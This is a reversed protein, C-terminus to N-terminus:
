VWVGVCVRQSAPCGKLCPQCLSMEGESLGDCNQPGKEAWSSYAHQTRFEALPSLQVSNTM